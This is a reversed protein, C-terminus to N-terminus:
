DILKMGRPSLFVAFPRGVFLERQVYPHREVQIATIDKLSVRVYGGGETWFDIAGRGDNRAAAKFQEFAEQVTRADAQERDDGREQATFHALRFLKHYASYPDAQDTAKKLFSVLEPQTPDDLSGTVQTGDELFLTVRIWYRCDASGPSNDGLVFYHDGELSVGMPLERRERPEELTRGIYYIDRDIGHVTVSAKGGAPLLQIRGRRGGAPEGGAIRMAEPGDLRIRKEADRARLQDLLATGVHQVTRREGDIEVVLEGDALSFAFEVSDGVMVGSLDEVALKSTHAGGSEAHFLEVSGAKLVLSYEDADRILRVEVGKGDALNASARIRLDGVIHNGFQEKSSETAGFSADHDVADGAEDGKGRPFTASAGDGLVIKGDVLEASGSRHFHKVWETKDKLRTVYPLWLVERPRPPKALLEIAAGENRKIYIDGQAILVQEGPLGICRKVYPEGRRLPYRFVVPEWRQPDRWTYTFKDVLVRDGTVPDGLLTPAMSGSPIRFAELGFHWVLLVLVLAAALSEINEFVVTLAKRETTRLDRGRVLAKSVSGRLTFVAALSLLGALATWGAAHLLAMALLSLGALGAALGGRLIPSTSQAKRRFMVWTFPLLVLLALLVPLRLWVGDLKPAPFLAVTCAAAAAFTCIDALRGRLAPSLRAYGKAQVADVTPQGAM